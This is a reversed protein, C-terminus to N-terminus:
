DDIPGVELLKIRERIYDFRDDDLIYCTSRGGVENVYRCSSSLYKVYDIYKYNINLEPTYLIEYRYGRRMQNGNIINLYIIDDLM